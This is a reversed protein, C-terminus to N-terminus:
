ERSGEPTDPDRSPAEDPNPGPPQEGPGPDPDIPTIDRPERFPPEMPGPDNMPPAVDDGPGGPDQNELQELEEDPTPIEELEGASMLGAPLAPETVPNDLGIPEGPEIHSAEARAEEVEGPVETEDAMAEDATLVMADAANMPSEEVVEIQRPIEAPVPISFAWGAHFVPHPFGDPAVDPAQGELTSAHLVSGEKIMTLLKKAAGPGAPSGIHGGRVSVAYHGREWEVNDADGPSLLALLWHVTTTPPAGKYILQPLIGDWFEPPHARGWGRSREGGFGSDALYRVATRLPDSWQDRVISDAFAVAFWLGAKAGFELCATQHPLASGSVRDVAASSRVGIRFPGPRGPPLLCQSVGDVAWRDDQLPKGAFISEILTVPVFRAGAYRTRVSPAPPWIHRPPPAYLTDGVFPFLSTFRVPSANGSRATTELWHELRGFLRMAETLAGYLTDSHYTLDIRDRAASAPGIRWPRSPRLKVLM